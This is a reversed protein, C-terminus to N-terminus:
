EGNVNFFDLTSLDFRNAEFHVVSARADVFHVLLVQELQKSFDQLLILLDVLFTNAQTKIDAFVQSLL